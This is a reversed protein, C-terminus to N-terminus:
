QRAADVIDGFVSALPALPTGAFIAGDYNPLVVEFHFLYERNAASGKGVTNGAPGTKLVGNRLSTSFGQASNEVTGNWRVTQGGLIQAMQQQMFRHSRSVPLLKIGVEGGREGTSSAFMQGDAGTM